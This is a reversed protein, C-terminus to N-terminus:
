PKRGKGAKKKRAPPQKKQAPAGFVRVDKSPPMKYGPNKPWDKKAPVPPYAKAMDKPPVFPKWAGEPQSLRDLVAAIAAPNYPMAGHGGRVEINESLPTDPNLAGPFLSVYDMRSYISTTPVPPPTLSRERVFTADIRANGPNFFEYIRRLDKPLSPDSKGNVNFPTGMTVVCRVMDPFERALERAYVGGLSFGVLSVKKGGNEAYIEHLRDRLREASKENLGTNFGDAWGYVKYGKDSIYKQLGANYTDHLLFGPLVLVPHGDGAPAGHHLHDLNGKVNKLAKMVRKPQAAADFIKKLRKLREFM